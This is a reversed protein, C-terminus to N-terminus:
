GSRVTLSGLMGRLGDGGLEAEARALVKGQGDLFVWFPTGQMGFASAVDSARDDILTPVRWGEDSLWRAPPFNPRQPNAWTSVAVIDVGDPMGPDKFDSVLAPVEKRCHPCWHAVFLVVQPRGSPAITLRAGDVGTGRVIPAAAGVAPDPRHAVFPALASGSIEVPSWAAVDAAKRSGTAFAVVVAVLALVGIGVAVLAIPHVHRHRRRKPPFRKRSPAVNASPRRARKIVRGSTM